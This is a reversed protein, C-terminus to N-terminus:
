NREPLPQNTYRYKSRPEACPRQNNYGFAAEDCSAHICCKRVSNRISGRRRAGPVAAMTDGTSKAFQLTKAMTMKFVRKPERKPDNLASKGIHAALTPYSPQFARLNLCFKTCLHMRCVTRHTSTDLQLKPRDVGEHMPFQQRLM